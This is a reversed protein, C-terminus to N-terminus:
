LGDFVTTPAIYIKAYNTHFITVQPNQEKIELNQSPSHFMKRLQHFYRVGMM